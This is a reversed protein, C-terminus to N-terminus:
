GWSAKPLAYPTPILLEKLEPLIEAHRTLRVFGEAQAMNCEKGRSEALAQFVTALQDGHQSVFADIATAKTVRHTYSMSVYHTPIFGLSQAHTVSAAEYCFVETTKGALLCPGLTLAALARHHPHVDVPWHTFVVDPNMEELYQEFEKITEQNAFFYGELNRLITPAKAGLIDHATFTEKRRTSRDDANMGCTAIITQVDHGSCILSQLAGGAGTEIDDPHAGFLLIKLKRM